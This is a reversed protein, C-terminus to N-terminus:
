TTTAWRVTGSHFLNSDRSGERGSDTEKMAVLILAGPYWREEPFSTPRFWLWQTPTEEVPTGPPTDIGSAYTAPISTSAVGFPVRLPM